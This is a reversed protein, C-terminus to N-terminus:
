TGGHGDDGDVLCLGFEGLEDAADFRPLLDHNRAAVHRDRHQFIEFHFIQGGAAARPHIRQCSLNRVSVITYPKSFHAVFVKHLCKAFLEPSTSVADGYPHIAASNVIIDLGQYRELTAALAAEVEIALSVDTRRVTIPLGEANALDALAKNGDDDIGLAMVSAGGRAFRLIAARGIGTTGTVIAIKGDFEAM